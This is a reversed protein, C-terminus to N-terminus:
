KDHGAGSDCSAGAVHASQYAVANVVGVCLIEVVASDATADGEGFAGATGIAIQTHNQAFSVSGANMPVVAAIASRHCQGNGVFAAGVVM